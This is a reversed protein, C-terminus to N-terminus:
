EEKAQTVVAAWSEQLADAYICLFHDDKSIALKVENRLSAQVNALALKDKTGRSLQLLKINKLAAKKRKRALKYAAKLIDKM